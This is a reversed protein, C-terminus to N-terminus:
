SFRRMADLALGVGVSGFRDGEVVNSQPFISRVAKRVSPLGTTGGTLFISNIQEPRTQAQRLTQQITDHIGSLEKETAQEFEDRHCSLTLGDEIFELDLEGELFEALHIKSEEVHAILRHGDQNKLLKLLREVLDPREARLKLDQINYINNKEYQNHILHWTSLDFYPAKPMELRSEGKMYSNMGLEPMAKFLSFRRDFDNGGIHVGMTALIDEYRDVKHLGTPSLRIITFDSTGGGIDVILALEERSLQQEYDIAAAIPEFQFEVDSFGVRRYMDELTDQAWDDAEKDGDVFHVPRGAVLQTLPEGTQAEARSKLESLFQIIIDPYTAQWQGLHTAQGMLSTGLISKLSRMLRGYEGDIYDIIAERGFCIRDDDFNFFLASPLTVQGQELPLLVPRGQQEVGITSNSTGFDIGCFSSM